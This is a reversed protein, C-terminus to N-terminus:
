TLSWDAARAEPSLRDDLYKPSADQPSASPCLQSFLIAFTLFFVRKRIKLM